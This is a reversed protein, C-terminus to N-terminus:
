CSACWRKPVSPVGPSWPWLRDYLALWREEVRWWQESASATDVSTADFLVQAHEVLYHSELLRLYRLSLKGFRVRDLADADKLCMLEYTLDPALADPPNHWQCCYVAIQKEEESRELLWPVKASTLWRAARRGHDRDMVDNKRQSDHSVAALHLASLNLRLGKAMMLRGLTDAWVLVRAAHGAGHPGRGGRAYFELIGDWRRLLHRDWSGACSEFSAVSRSLM